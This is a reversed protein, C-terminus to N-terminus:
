TEEAISSAPGGATQFDTTGSCVLAVFSPIDVLGAIGSRTDPDFRLIRWFGREGFDIFVPVQTHWRHFLRSRGYWEFGAIGSQPDIRERFNQFNIPDFANRTGDVVWLMPEHFAERARREEPLITSRQFEIVLGSPTKVDAIHCTTDDADFVPVEQWDEPFRNKWARHWASENEWWTDGCPSGRKHSWHWQVFEGCKAHTEGRCARCTGRGSPFASMRQGDVDAFKM